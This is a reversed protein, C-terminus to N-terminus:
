KWKNILESYEKELQEKTPSVQRSMIKGSRIKYTVDSFVIDSATKILDLAAIVVNVGGDSYELNSDEELSQEIIPIVEEQIFKEINM